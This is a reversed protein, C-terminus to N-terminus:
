RRVAGFTVGRLLHNRVLFTFVVIPIVFVVSAAALRGWEVAGVGIISNLWPPVTAAYDRNLLNALVFENWAVIASFVATAAMAPIAEPIVIKWIAELRSYGDIMAAEEYEVPIEDFFGKMMWVVFPLNFTTYLLIIGPYSNNLKLDSFLLFIPILVVVPPLMRTSLIFFMVDNEAPIRFRSVAYATLTGLGVALLTSTGAIIISNILRDRFASLDASARVGTESQISGGILVSAYNELTPEFQVFPIYTPVRSIVEARTKISSVTIWYLPFMFFFFVLGLALWFGIRQLLSQRQTGAMM